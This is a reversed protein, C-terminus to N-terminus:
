RGLEVLYNFVAQKEAEPLAACRDSQAHSRRGASFDGIQKNLYAVYQNVLPPVAGNLGGRADNGHCEACAKTYRAKGTEAFAAQSGFGGIIERPAEYPWLNLSRESMGSIYASVKEIVEGDFNVHKFIPIMPKNIRVKNKFAHLQDQVYRQPLGALRPYQGQKGGEGREGHCAKCYAYIQKGTIKGAAPLPGSAVLMGVSLVVLASMSKM